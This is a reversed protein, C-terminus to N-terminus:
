PVNKMKLVFTVDVMLKLVIIVLMVSFAHLAIQAYPALLTVNAAFETVAVHASLEMKAILM